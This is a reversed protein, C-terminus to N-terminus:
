RAGQAMGEESTRLRATVLLKSGSCSPLRPAGSIRLSLSCERRRRTGLEPDTIGPNPRCPSTRGSLRARADRDLQCSFPEPERSRHQAVENRVQAKRQPENPSGGRKVREDDGEDGLPMPAIVATKLM